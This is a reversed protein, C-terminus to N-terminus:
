DELLFRLFAQAVILGDDKDQLRQMADTYMDETFVGERYRGTIIEEEIERTFEPHGQVTIFSKAKYMGQNDCIATSALQEVGPPIGYVEDKHMQWISLNDVKFLEKGKASLEIPVVSLEWGKTGRDVRQGLARAIIQHGFCVGIARVREHDLVSKTFAVLKQIWPTDAFSDHKSGTILIADIDDLNPYQEEEVKYMSLEIGESASLGPHGLDEAGRELMQKFVGGYGGYKAQTQARPTDCELIAIRLPPSPM